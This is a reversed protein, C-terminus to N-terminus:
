QPPNAEHTSKKWDTKLTDEHLGYKHLFGVFGEWHDALVEVEPNNDVLRGAGLEGPIYIEEIGPRKRSSKLARVMRDSEKKVKEIPGFVSPDIVIITSGGVSTPADTQLYESPQAPLDPAIVGRPNIIATLTEMFLNLAYLRPESFVWPARCDSIRRYGEILQTYPVVNDTLEGTDPDVLLRDKLKRKNLLADTIDADYGEGIKLSTIVPLEEGGPCVADFPHIGMLFDMGGYPAALPIANNSAFAFMDNDLALSTYAFFAGADFHNSGFAIAIGQRKAKDITSEAMKYLTYHGSSRNGDYVVWAPGENVIEPVAKIDLIGGEFPLLIAELVGMGQYFKGQRDGLSLNRAVIRAHEESAGLKSWFQKYCYQLYDADMVKRTSSTGAMIM